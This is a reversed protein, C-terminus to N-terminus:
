TTGIPREDNRTARTKPKQRVLDRQKTTRTTESGGSSRPVCGGREDAVPERRRGRQQQPTQDRETADTRTREATDIALKKLSRRLRESSPLQTENDVSDFLPSCRLVFRFATLPFRIVFALIKFLRRFRAFENWFGRPECREGIASSYIRARTARTGNSRDAAFRRGADRRVARAPRDSVGCFVVLSVSVFIGGSKSNKRLVIQVDRRAGREGAAL